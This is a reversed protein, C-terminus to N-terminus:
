AKHRKVRPKERTLRLGRSLVNIELEIGKDPLSKQSLEEYIPKALAANKKFLYLRALAHSLRISSPILSLGEQLVDFAEQYGKSKLLAYALNIYSAEIVNAPHQEWKERFGLHNEPLRLRLYSAEIELRSFTLLLAEEIRKIATEYKDQKGEDIDIYSLNLLTLPLQLYHLDLATELNRRALPDNKLKPGCRMYGLDNYLKAQVHRERTEELKKVLYEEAGSEDGKAYLAIWRGSEEGDEDRDSAHEVGTTTKGSQVLHQISTLRWREVVGIQALLVDLSPVGVAKLLSALDPLEILFGDYREILVRADYAQQNMLNFLSLLDITRMQAADFYLEVQMVERPNELNRLSLCLLYFAGAKGVMECVNFCEGLLGLMDEGDPREGAVLKALMSFRRKISGIIDGEDRYYPHFIFRGLKPSEGLVYSLSQALKESKEGFPTPPGKGLVLGRSLKGYRRVEHWFRLYMSVFEGGALIYRDTDKVMLGLSVFYEQKKTLNRERRTTALDSKAEGRFSEDLDIIDKVSWNPYRTMNYLLELDVSSLRHITDVRARLKEEQFAAVLIDLVDDLVDVTINLDDQGGKAYRNYIAQCILRIQNPKGQSYRSLYDITMPSMLRREDESLPLLACEAVDSVNTFSKLPIVRAQGFFPESSETFVFGLQPLGAFIVGCRGAEQIVYRVQQKIEQAEMLVQAEDLMLLVGQYGAVLLGDIITKIDHELILNTLGPPGSTALHMSYAKPFWLGGMVPQDAQAPGGATPIPFGFRKAAEADILIGGKQAEFLLKSIIEQWFYWPDAAITDTVSTLVALLRYKDCIREIQRLLSTKGVRREGIVAVMPVMPEANALRAIEEEITELEGKRGAFLKAGVVPHIWDYPNKRPNRTAM